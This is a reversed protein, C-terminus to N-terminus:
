GTPISLSLSGAAGPLQLPIQLAGTGRRRASLNSGQFVGTRAVGESAKTVPATAGANPPPPPPPPAAPMKFDFKPFEPFEIDPPKWNSLDDLKKQLDDITKQYGSTDPAAPPDMGFWNDLIEGCM